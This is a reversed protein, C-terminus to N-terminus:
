LSVVVCRAVNYTFYILSIFRCENGGSKGCAHACLSKLKIYMYKYICTHQRHIIIFAKLKTYARMSTTQSHPQACCVRTYLLYMKILMFQKFQVLAHVRLWCLSCALLNAVLVIVFPIYISYSWIGHNSFKNGDTYICICDLM